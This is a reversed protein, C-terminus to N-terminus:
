GLAPFNTRQLLAQFRPDSRLPDFVLHTNLYPMLGARDEAFLRATAARPATRPRHDSDGRKLICKQIEVKPDPVDRFRIDLIEVM